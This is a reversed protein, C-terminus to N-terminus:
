QRDDPGVFICAQTELGQPHNAEVPTKGGQCLPHFRKETLDVLRQSKVIAHVCAKNSRVVSDIIRALAASANESFNTMEQIEKRKQDPSRRNFHFSAAQGVGAFVASVVHNDRKM